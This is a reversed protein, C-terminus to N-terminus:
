HLNNDPSKKFISDEFENLLHGAEVDNGSKYKSYSKDLIENLITRKEPSFDNPYAISIGRRLEDFARELNMQQDNPLFDEHPFQDPAYLLVYAIHDWLDDITKIKWPAM